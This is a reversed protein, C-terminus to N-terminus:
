RERARQKRYYEQEQGQRQAPEQEEEMIGARQRPLNGDAM